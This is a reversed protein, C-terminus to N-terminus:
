GLVAQSQKRFSTNSRSWANLIRRPSGVQSCARSHRRECAPFATVGHVGRVRPGSRRHRGRRPIDGRDRDATRSSGGASSTRRTTDGTTCRPGPRSRDRSTAFPIGRALHAVAFRRTQAYPDSEEVEVGGPRAPRRHGSQRHRDDGRSRGGPLFRDFALDIRALVIQGLEDGPRLRVRECKGAVARARARAPGRRRSRRVITRSCSGIAPETSSDASRRRPPVRCPSRAPDEVRRWELPMGRRAAVLGQQLDSTEVCAIRPTARRRTRRTSRDARARARSRPRIDCYRPRARGPRRAPSRCM